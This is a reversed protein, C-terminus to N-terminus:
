KYYFSVRSPLGTNSPKRILLSQTQLLTSTLFNVEFSISDKQQKFTPISAIANVADEKGLGFEIQVRKTSNQHFFNTNYLVLSTLKGYNDKMNKYDEVACNLLIPEFPNEKGYQIYHFVIELHTTVVWQYIKLNVVNM